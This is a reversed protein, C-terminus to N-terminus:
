KGKGGGKVGQGFGRGSPLKPDGPLGTHQTRFPKGAKKRAYAKSANGKVRRGEFGAGTGRPQYGPALHKKGNGILDARGM